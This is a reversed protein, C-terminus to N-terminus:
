LFLPPLALGSNIEGAQGVRDPVRDPSGGVRAKLGKAAVSVPWGALTAFLLSVVRSFGKYAVSVFFGPFPAGGKSTGNYEGIRM